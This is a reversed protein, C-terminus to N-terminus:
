PQVPTDGIYEALVGHLHRAAVKSEGEAASLLQHAKAVEHSAAAVEADLRQKVGEASEVREAAERARERASKFSEVAGHWVDFFTPPAVPPQAPTQAPPPAPPPAVPTQAAPPPAVPTQAAPPAAPPQVPTQAPPQVPPPPPPPAVPATVGPPPEPPAVSDPSIAVRSVDQQEVNQDIM